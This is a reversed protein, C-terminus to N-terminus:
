LTISVGNAICLHSTVVFDVVVVVIVVVVVVFIVVIVLLLFFPSIMIKNILFPAHCCYSAVILM